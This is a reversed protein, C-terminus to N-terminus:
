EPLSKPQTHERHMRRMSSVHPVYLATGAPPSVEAVVAILEHQHWRRARTARQHHTVAALLVREDRPASCAGSGTPGTHRPVLDGPPSRSPSSKDSPSATGRLRASTGSTGLDPRVRLTSRRPTRSARSSCARTPAQPTRSRTRPSARTRPAAACPQLATSSRPARRGGSRSSGWGHRRARAAPRRASRRGSWRCGQCSRTCAFARPVLGTRSVADACSVFPASTHTRARTSAVCASTSPARIMMRWWPPSVLM